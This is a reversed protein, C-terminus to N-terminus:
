VHTADRHEVRQDGEKAAEPSERAAPTGAQHDAQHLRMEYLKSRVKEVPWGCREAILQSRATVPGVPYWQLAQHLQTLREDTWRFQLKPAVPEAAKSEVPAPLPETKVEVPPPVSTALGLQRAWQLITAPEQHLIRALMETVEPTSDYASMAQLALPDLRTTLWTAAPIEAPLAATRTLLGLVEHVHASMRQLVVQRVLCEALLLGAEQSTLDPGAVERWFQGLECTIAAGQVTEFQVYQGTAQVSTCSLEDILVADLDITHAQKFHDTFTRIM